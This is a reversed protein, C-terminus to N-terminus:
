CVSCRSAQSCILRNLSVFGVLRCSFGFEVLLDFLSLGLQLGSRGLETFKSYVLSVARNDLITLLTTLRHIHIAVVFGSFKTKSWRIELDRWLSRIFSRLRLLSELFKWIKWRAMLGLAYTQSKIRAEVRFRAITPYVATTV